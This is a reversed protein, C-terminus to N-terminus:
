PNSASTPLHGFEADPNLLSFLFRKEGIFNDHVYFFMRNEWDTNLWVKFVGNTGSGNVIVGLTNSASLNTLKGFSHMLYTQSSNGEVIGFSSDNKVLTKNGSGDFNLVTWDNETLNIAKNDFIGAGLIDISLLRSQDRLLSYMQSSLIKTTTSTENNVTITIQEQPTQFTKVEISFNITQGVSYQIIPSDQVINGDSDVVEMDIFRTKPSFILAVRNLNLPYSIGINIPSDLTQNTVAIGFNAKYPLDSSVLHISESGPGSNRLTLNNETLNVEFNPDPKVYLNASDFGSIQGYSSLTPWPYLLFSLICSIVLIKLIVQKNIRIEFEGKCGSNDSLSDM